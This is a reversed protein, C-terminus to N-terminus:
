PSREIGCADAVGRRCQLRRLLLKREELLEGNPLERTLTALLQDARELEEQALADRVAAVLALERALPDAPAPTEVRARPERPAVSPSPAAAAPEPALVPPTAPSVARPAAPELRRSARGLAEDRAQSRPDDGQVAVSEHSVDRSIWAVAAAAALVAVIVTTRRLASRRPAPREGRLRAEIARLNAARLEPTCASAERFAAIASQTRDPEVM